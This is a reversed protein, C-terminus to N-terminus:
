HVSYVVPDHLNLDTGIFETFDTITADFEVVQDKNLTLLFDRSLGSLLVLDFFGGETTSFSVTNDEYVENVTAVLHIRQGKISSLYESFQIDTMTKKNDLIQQYLGPIPQPYERSSDWFIPTSTPLPLPTDSPIVQAAATQQFSLQVQAVATEMQETPSLGQNPAEPSSPLIFILICCSFTVAVLVLVIKVLRSQRSFLNGTKM